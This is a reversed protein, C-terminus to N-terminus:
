FKAVPDEIATTYYSRASILHTQVGHEVLIKTLRFLGSIVMKNDLNVPSSFIQDMTFFQLYM